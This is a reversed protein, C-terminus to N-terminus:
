ADFCAIRGRAIQLDREHDVDITEDLVIGRIPLGAAVVSSWYDRLRPWAEVAPMDRVLERRLAYLGSTALVRRRAGDGLASVAGDPELDLWLPKEDDLDRTAGLAGLPRREAWPALAARAFRAVERPPALADVTSVLFGEARESLAQCVIRFTEWSSATDHQLVTWRLGGPDARVRERVEGGESNIVIVVERVGAARLGRAVWEFLPRGGLPVLPKPTGPFAARLREGRGAAIIGAVSPAPARPNSSTV